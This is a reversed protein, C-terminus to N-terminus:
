KPPQLTLTGFQPVRKIRSATNIGLEVLHGWAILDKTFEVKRLTFPSAFGPKTVIDSSMGFLEIELNNTQPIPTPNDILYRLQEELAPRYGPFREQKLAENVYEVQNMWQTSEDAWGLGIMAVRSEHFDQLLLDNRGIPNALNYAQYIGNESISRRFNNVELISWYSQDRNTYPAVLQFYYGDPDTTRRLYTKISQFLGIGELSGILADQSLRVLSFLASIDEVEVKFRPDVEM